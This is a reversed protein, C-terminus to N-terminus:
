FFLQRENSHAEKSRNLLWAILNQSKFVQDTGQQTNFQKKYIEEVKEQIETVQNQFALKQPDPICHGKEFIMAKKYLNVIVAIGGAAFLIRFFVLFVWIAQYTAAESTYWGGLDIEAKTM